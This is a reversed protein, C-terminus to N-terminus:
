LEATIPDIPIPVFTAEAQSSEQFSASQARGQALWRRLVGVNERQSQSMPILKKLAALVDATQIDRAPSEPDNFALYMADIIAQEIEAGVYGESAQAIADLDFNSPDRKRKRLHVEFIERRENTTPLDLFFIEDFRGRRLLEPPLSGIDNATAVIFVPKTKEQMWSLVNAFVRMSTGGDGSGTSLGKEIEDIWLVCPAVTEALNLAQRTNEESQGVLSGFLAGLDLRILPLKWMSAVTKATLSKGTGPIGILAIGKPAPLGYAQAEKSFARQRMRLWKKLAELGGVDNVTEAPTYFELAGSARIIQRKAENIEALDKLDLVGDSVIARAFVRQAQNSSLGLAARLLQQREEDDLNVQIGPAALLHSLTENLEEIGPLPYNLQFASDQLETPLENSPTSIVMTKHTYKLEQALNRLKRVIRPQRHWCQHFDRLLFVVKGDMKAIAELATIPDKAKPTERAPTLAQFDDAHDWVLLERDTRECLATLKQVIREEERSVVCILSFRSRLSLELERELDM